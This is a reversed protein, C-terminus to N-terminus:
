TRAPVPSTRRRGISCEGRSDLARAITIGMSRRSGWRCATPPAFTSGTSPMSGNEFRPDSFAIGKLEEFHTTAVVRVERDALTELFARAIAAGEASRDGIRGRRPSGPVGPGRGAPDRETAPHPRLVHLTGEVSQEDGVAVFLERFVSVTSDPSAPISLGAMAMLTLLGLTKLAV